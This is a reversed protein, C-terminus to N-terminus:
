CRHVRRHLYAQPCPRGLTNCGRDSHDPRELRRLAAEPLERVERDRAQRATEKRRALMRVAGTLARWRRAAGSPPGAYKVSRPRREELM